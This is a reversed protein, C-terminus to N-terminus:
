KKITSMFEEVLNEPICSFNVLKKNLSYQAVYAPNEDLKKKFLKSFINKVNTM